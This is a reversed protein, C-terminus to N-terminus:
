CQGELRFPYSVDAVDNCLSFKSNISLLNIEVLIDNCKIYNLHPYHM